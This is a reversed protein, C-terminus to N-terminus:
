YVTQKDLLARNLLIEQLLACIRDGSNGDGYLNVAGDCKERFGPDNLAKDIAAEIEDTTYGSNVINSAQPRGRQRNGVNVVPIKFSPAELIGSSSNGVLAAANALLMLYQDRDVNRLATVQEPSGTEIVKVIEQYGLDSNPYICFVPMKSNICAQLAAQMQAAAEEMEVLIPHM